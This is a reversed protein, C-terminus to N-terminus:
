TQKPIVKPKALSKLVTGCHHVMDPGVTHPGDFACFDVDLGGATMLDRLQTASTFPLVPDQTGHSQVIRTQMLRDFNSTWENQCILTGSMAFLAAPPRLDSRLAVDMSLMAGQSFGGLVYMSDPTALAASIGDAVADRAAAIGPPQHSHLDSFSGAEISAMMSAMNIPWWARAEPMGLQELTGTADPFIFRFQSALDGLQEIWPQSLPALDAASAGYGHLIFVPITTSPGGDIVICNLPGFQEM